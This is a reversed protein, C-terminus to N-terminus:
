WGIVASCKAKFPSVDGTSLVVVTYMVLTVIQMLLSNIM